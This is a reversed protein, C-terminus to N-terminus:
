KEIYGLGEYFIRGALCAEKVRAAFSSAPIYERIGARLAGWQFLYGLIADSPNQQVIKFLRAFKLINSNEPLLEKLSSDLLWSHCTFLSFGLEPYYFDFFKRADDMSQLCADPLLPEGEPIHVEIVLDGQAINKEPIDFESPAVCFQLRGLKFLRMKIHRKLWQTEGLHLEGKIDSWIQTWVVIDHLTDKLIKDPIGKEKYKRSLAECFYLCYLLNEAGAQENVPYNEVTVGDAIQFSGVAGEFAADMSSPFGLEYYWKRITEQVCTM